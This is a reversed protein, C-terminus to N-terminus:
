SKVVGHKMKLFPSVRRIGVLICHCDSIPEINKTDKFVKYFQLIGEFKFSKM